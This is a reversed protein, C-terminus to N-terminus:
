STGSDVAEIKEMCLSILQSYMDEIKEVKQLQNQRVQEKSKDDLEDDSPVFLDFMEDNYFETMIMLQKLLDKSEDGTNIELAKVLEINRETGFDNTGFTTKRKINYKRSKIKHKSDMKDSYTEILFSFLEISVSVVYAM